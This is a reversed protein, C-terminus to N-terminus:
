PSLLDLIRSLLSQQEELLTGTEASVYGTLQTTVPIFGLLRLHKLAPIKYVPKGDKEELEIQSELITIEASETAEPEASPSAEPTASASATPSASPTASPLVGFFKPGLGKKLHARLMNQVAHEPLVTLVREIGDKTMILQNTSLDIRLPFKAISRLRNELNVLHSSPTSGEEEEDGAEEDEGDELNEEEDEVNEEEDELETKSTVRGNRIEVREKIGGQRVEVRARDDRVETKVRGENTRVEEKQEHDSESRVSGSSGSSGSGSSASGNSGEDKAVLVGQVNPDDPFKEGVKINSSVFVGAIVLVIIPLLLHVAGKQSILM